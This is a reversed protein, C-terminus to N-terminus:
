LEMLVLFKSSRWFVEPASIRVSGKFKGDAPAGDLGAMDNTTIIRYSKAPNPLAIERVQTRDIATFEGTELTRALVATKGLGLMGGRQEIIGRKLLDEKKGAVWYVTNQETTLAAAEATLQNRQTELQVNTERLASNESTLTGVQDLLAVIEAKQNDIITQFQKITSDFQAMQATMTANNATLQNVRRRSQALREESERLRDTLGKVREALAQRQQTPSLQEMDGGATAAVPQGSKVKDLEANVETIFTSTAVVEKLLSDKEASISAVQELQKDYESKSVCGAAAVALVGALVFKKM